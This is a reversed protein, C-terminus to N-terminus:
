YAYTSHFLHEFFKSGYAHQMMTNSQLKLLNQGHKPRTIHKEISEFCTPVFVNCIKCIM